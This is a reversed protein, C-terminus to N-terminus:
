FLHSLLSLVNVHAFYVLLFAAILFPAFPVESRMTLPAPLFSLHRKGSALLKQLLLMAVSVAAGIWFALVIFSFTDLPLLMLSLPVALKADGLGIWKGKSFLWLSGFFALALAGSALLSLLLHPKISVGSWLVYQVIALGLLTFVFEHPIVMHRMDYAATAILVSTVALGLLMRPLDPSLLYVGTFLIGTFVEMLFLRLPIRAGCSRCRGRLFIYSLLPFLEYWSLTHGCSTCHSRDNISAGTHLRSVFVDLFSGIVVGFIFALSAEFPLPLVYM